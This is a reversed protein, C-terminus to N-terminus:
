GPKETQSLKFGFFPPSGYISDSEHNFFNEVDDILTVFHDALGSTGLHVPLTECMAGGV